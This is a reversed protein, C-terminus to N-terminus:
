RKARVEVGSADRASKALILQDEMSALCEAKESALSRAKSLLSKANALEEKCAVLQAEAHRCHGHTAHLESARDAAIRSAENAKEENSAAQLAAVFAHM